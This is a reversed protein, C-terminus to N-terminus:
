ASRRHRRRPGPPRPLRRGRGLGGVRAATVLVLWADFGLSQHRQYLLDLRAKRPICRRCYVADTEEPTTCAALLLGEHRAFVLSALGTVGPRSRLVQAYLDPFREVYTRLPPRPGVLCIEGRLINLLQPIEDLRIRRLWRGLPTIRAAKDGGSVGRDGESASMTRLKWLTFGQTASRMREAGYFIPRGQKRWCVLLVGLFLPLLLPAMIALLSLEVLRKSWTV